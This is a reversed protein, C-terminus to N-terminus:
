WSGEQQRKAAQGIRRDTQAQIFKTRESSIDGYLERIKSLVPPGHRTVGARYNLQAVVLYAEAKTHRTQKDLPHTETSSSMTDEFRTTGSSFSALTVAPDQHEGLWRHLTMRSIGLADAAATRPLGEEVADRVVRRMRGIAREYQRRAELVKKLEQHQRPDLKV